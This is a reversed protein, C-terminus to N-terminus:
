DAKRGLMIARLELQDEANMNLVFVTTRGVPTKGMIAADRMEFHDDWRDNRPHFLPTLQSTEPDYGAVNSSKALNCDICALALNGLVDTGQHKRPIIHEIQLSALPSLDQPLRCFECRDAARERVLRRTAADM